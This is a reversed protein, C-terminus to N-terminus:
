LARELIDSLERESLEVPNGKMSSANRAQAAVAPIMTKDLGIQSLSPIDLEECLSQVWAVGDSPVSTGKGTLLHAADYFRGLMPSDPDKKELSSLNAKMVIPLLRACIAGHPATIVGGLPAALGHVAGLRANALALGSFLGALSMDTRADLDNGNYYARRISRSVRRIGERCIADTLPNPNNCVYPEILQTLADIGTYATVPPPLSRTLEPDIVALKPLMYPSRLSVKVQHEVSKLVANRTAESGTGATTPIAIYPLSPETLQRGKGVVELFDLLGGKNALIAAVAKGTDIVSGGGLGIIVECGNEKALAVAAQVIEITPEGNVNFTFVSIKVSELQRIFSSARDSQRGTVLLARNGFQVAISSVEGLIGPGFLIRNATAFEFRM